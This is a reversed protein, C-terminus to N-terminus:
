LTGQPRASGSHRATLLAVISTRLPGWVALPLALSVGAEKCRGPANVTRPRAEEVAVTVDKGQSGPAVSGVDLEGGAAGEPEEKPHKDGLMQSGLELWM